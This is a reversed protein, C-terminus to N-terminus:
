AIVMARVRQLDELTDVSTKIDSRDKTPMLVSCRSTRLIYPTVHERDAGDRAMVSARMLAKRSFVEVDEGDVYGRTVNSVYDSSAVREFAELVWGAIVPDLLPCDGTVRMIVDCPYESAVRAFRGLVDSEDIDAYAHMYDPTESPGYQRLAANIEERDAPVTAIAIAYLGRIERVRDVVRQIMPVGGVDM